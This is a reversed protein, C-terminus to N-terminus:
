EAHPNGESAIFPRMDPWDLPGVSVLRTVWGTVPLVRQNPNAANYFDRADEIAQCADMPSLNQLFMLVEGLHEMAAKATTETKDPM